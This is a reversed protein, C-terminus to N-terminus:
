CLVCLVLMLLMPDPLLAALVRPRKPKSPVCLFAWVRLVCRDLHTPVRPDEGRGCGSPEWGDGRLGEAHVVAKDVM